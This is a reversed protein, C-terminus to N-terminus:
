FREYKDDIEPYIHYIVMKIAAEAMEDIANSHINWRSLIEEETITSNKYKANTKQQEAFNQYALSSKLDNKQKRISRLIGSFENEFNWQEYWTDEAQDIRNIVSAFGEKDEKTKSSIFATAFKRLASYLRRPKNDLEDLNCILKEIANVQEKSYKKPYIKGM